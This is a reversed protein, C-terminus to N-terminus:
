SVTILLQNGYVGTGGDHWRETFETLPLTYQDGLLPDALVIATDTITKVLAYHPDGDQEIYGVLAFGSALALRVDALTANNHRTATLGHLQLLAVIADATTGVEPTTGMEAALQQQTFIIGIHALVM